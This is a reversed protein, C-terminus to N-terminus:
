QWQVSVQGSGPVVNVQIVGNALITIPLVAGTKVLTATATTITAAGTTLQVTLPQTYVTADLTSNLAFTLQHTSKADVEPAVVALEQQYSSVHAFTDVWVDADRTNVYDIHASFESAILPAYEWWNFGYIEPVLWSGQQIAADVTANMDTAYFIAKGYETVNQIIAHHHQLVLQDLYANDQHFPFEFSFPAVGVQTTITAAAGNIEADLQTPDTVTTLDPHSYTQNAIEYGHAALAKWSQWSGTDKNPEMPPQPDSDLVRTMGTVVSFTGKYNYNDLAPVACDIQSQYGSAFIYSIAAKKNNLYPTIGVTGTTEAGSLARISFPTESSAVTSVADRADVQLYYSGAASPTWTATSSTTFASSLAVWNIATSGVAGIWFKYTVNTGGTPTATLTIPTNLPQPSVSPSVALKVATVGQAATVPYFLYSQMDFLNASTAERARIVLPFTGAATPTWSIANSPTYDRLLTWYTATPDGVWFQYVLSNGGVVQATVTVPQNVIGSGVPSTGVSLSTLPKATNKITYSMTQQINPNQTTGVQRAFVQLTYTDEKAPAWTCTPSTNYDQLLFTVGTSSIAQFKYQTAVVPTASATLTIVTNAPQPSSPSASLSVATLGSAVPYFIDNQLDYLNTSTAERVRVVLPYIGAAAPTWSITNGVAYDRLMTWYTATPDGVWFQYVPSVGGTVQATVTVPQSAVGTTTPNTLLNIASIAASWAPMGVGLVGTLAMALWAVRVAHYMHSRM